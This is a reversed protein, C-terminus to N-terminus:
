AWPRWSRRPSPGETSPPGSWPWGARRPFGGRGSGSRPWSGTPFAPRGLARALRHLEVRLNQRAQAHGYLLDALLGRPTPGELALYYLLGLARLPVRM